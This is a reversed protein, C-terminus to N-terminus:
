RIVRQLILWYIKFICSLTLSFIILNLLYFLIGNGKGYFCNYLKYIYCDIDNIDKLPPRGRRAYFVFRFRFSSGFDSLFTLFFTRTENGFIIRWMENECM